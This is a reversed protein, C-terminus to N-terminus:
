AAHIYSPTPTKTATQHQALWREANTLLHLAAGAATQVTIVAARVILLSTDALAEDRRIRFLAALGVVTGAYALVGFVLAPLVPAPAYWGVLLGVASAIVAILATTPTTRM